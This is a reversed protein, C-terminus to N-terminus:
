WVVANTRLCLALYPMAMAVAAVLWFRHGPVTARRLLLRNLLYAVPVFILWGLVIMLVIAEHEDPDVPSFRAWGLQHAVAHIAFLTVTLPALAFVGLTVNLPVSFLWTARASHPAASKPQGM